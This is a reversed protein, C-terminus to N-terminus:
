SPHGCDPCHWLGDEDKTLTDHRCAAQQREVALKVPHVFDTLADAAFDMRDKAAQASQRGFSGSAGRLQLWRDRAELYDALLASFKM